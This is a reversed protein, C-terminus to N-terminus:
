RDTLASMQMENKDCQNFKPELVTKMQVQQADQQAETYVEHLCLSPDLKNWRQSPLAPHLLAWDVLQIFPTIHSNSHHSPQSM